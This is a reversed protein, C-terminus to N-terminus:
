NKKQYDSLLTQIRTLYFTEERIMNDLVLPIFNGNAMLKCEKRLNKIKHLFQIFELLLEKVERNFLNLPGNDLSTRPIITELEITKLLLNNFKSKFEFAEKRFSTESADVSDMIFSAHGSADLLWMKHLNINQINIDMTKTDNIDKLYYYFDLAENIM